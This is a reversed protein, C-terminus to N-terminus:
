CHGNRLMDSHTAGGRVARALRDSGNQLTALPHASQLLVRLGEPGTTVIRGAVHGACQGLIDLTGQSQNGAQVM